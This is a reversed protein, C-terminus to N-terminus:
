SAWEQEGLYGWFEAVAQNNEFFEDESVFHEALVGVEHKAKNVKKRFRHFKGVMPKPFEFGLAALNQVTNTVFNGDFAAKSLEGKSMQFVFDRVDKEWIHYERIYAGQCITERVWPAM